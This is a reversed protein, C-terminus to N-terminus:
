KRIEAVFINDRTVASKNFHFNDLLRASFFVTNKSGYSGGSLFVCRLKTLPDKCILIQYKALYLFMNKM